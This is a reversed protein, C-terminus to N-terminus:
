IMLVSIYGYIAVELAAPMALREHFHLDVLDGLSFGAERRTKEKYV